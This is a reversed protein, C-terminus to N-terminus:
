QQAPPRPQASILKGIACVLDAIRRDTELNLRRQAEEQKRREEAAESLERIVSSQKTELHTMVLLADKLKKRAAELARIRAEHDELNPNPM